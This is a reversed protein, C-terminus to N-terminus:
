KKVKPAAPKTETPKQAAIEPNKDGVMGHRKYHKITESDYRDAEIKDGKNVRIQKGDTFQKLAYM